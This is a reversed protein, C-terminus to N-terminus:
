GIPHSRAIPFDGATNFGIRAYNLQSGPLWEEDATERLKMPNM